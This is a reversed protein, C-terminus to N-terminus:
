RPNARARIEAFTQDRLLNGAQWVTELAERWVMGRDCWRTPQTVATEFLDSSCM